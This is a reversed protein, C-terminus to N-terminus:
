PTHEGFTISHARLTTLARHLHTTVTGPAIGLTAATQHTDLDLLLRLVTVERQRQPLERLAQVLWSDDGLTDQTAASVSDTNTALAVERRTRRWRSVRYNLATHVVWAAPAPHRRVKAWGAWARAFAEDVAEDALGRDAGAALVSRLCADKSREYFSTFEEEHRM